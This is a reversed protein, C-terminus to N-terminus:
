KSLLIPLVPRALQILDALRESKAAESAQQPTVATQRSPPNQRGFDKRPQSREQSTPSASSIYLMSYVRLWSVKAAGPM